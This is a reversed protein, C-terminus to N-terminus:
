FYSFVHVKHDVEFSMYDNILLDRAVKQYDIYNDLYDPIPYCDEFLLQAFDEESAFEGQYCNGLAHAADAIDNNYYALVEAGLKGHEHIFQAIAVIDDVSEYEHIRVEEFGSYDHIAWEEADDMPSSALMQNIDKWVADVAQVVDIWKGHLIGNNYASLCAV